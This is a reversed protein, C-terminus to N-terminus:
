DAMKLGKSFRDCWSKQLARYAARPRSSAVEHDVAADTCVVGRHTYRSTVMQLKRFECPCAPSAVWCWIKGGLVMPGNSRNSDLTLITCNSLLVTLDPDM